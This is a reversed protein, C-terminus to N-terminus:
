YIGRAATSFKYENILPQLEKKYESINVKGKVLMSAIYPIVRNDFHVQGRKPENDYHCLGDIGLRLCTQNAFQEFHGKTEGKIGIEGNPTKEHIEKLVSTKWLTLTQSFVNSSYFPVERLTDTVKKTTHFEKTSTFRIFSYSSSELINIYKLITDFELINYIIYDENFSLCYKEKIQKICSLYQDRYSLNIDYLITKTNYPINIDCFSYSNNEPWYKNLQEYFMEWIDSNCSNTNVVLALDNILM